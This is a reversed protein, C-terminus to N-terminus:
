LGFEARIFSKIGESGTVRLWLPGGDRTQALEFSFFPCCRRELSVWEAAIILARAPLRFEYGNSIERKETIARLLTMAVEQYRAREAKTLASMNCAFREGGAAPGFPLAALITLAVLIKM